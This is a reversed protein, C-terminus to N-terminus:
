DLEFAIQASDARYLLRAFEVPRDRRSGVPRGLQVLRGLFSAAGAGAGVRAAEWEAFFSHEFALQARTLKTSAAELRPPESGDKLAEAAALMWPILALSSYSYIICANPEGADVLATVHAVHTRPDEIELFHSVTRDPKTRRVSLVSVRRDEDPSLILKVLGAPRVERRPPAVFAGSGKIRVIAGDGVLLDLAPRIVARSVEFVEEIERESAFRAGPEWAGVELMANLQAGLQVYLPVSSSRDLRPSGALPVDSSQRPRGRPQSPKPM